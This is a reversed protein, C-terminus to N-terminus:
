GAELNPNGLEPFLTDTRLVRMEVQSPEDLRKGTGRQPWAQIENLEPMLGKIKHLINAVYALQQESLETELLSYISKAVQVLGARLRIPDSLESSPAVLLHSIPVGLAKQWLALDQLRLNDSKEQERAVSVPVGMRRAVARLSMDARLREERLRHMRPQSNSIM